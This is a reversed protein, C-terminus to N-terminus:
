ARERAARRADGMVQRTTVFHVKAVDHLAAEGHQRVFESGAKAVGNAGKPFDYSWAKGMAAIGRTFADRALVSAAAVATDREANPTQLLRVGRGREGLAGKVVRDDAFQDLVVIPCAPNKALLKEIATAHAWALLGEAGQFKAVLDNYKKPELVVEEFGSPGVVERVFPAAKAIQMGVLEKSDRVGGEKLERETEETVFIGAVVLPGFYDSKGSEDTGIRPGVAESLSAPAPRSKTKRTAGLGKLIAEVRRMGDGDSGGLVVTGTREVNVVVAGKRATFGRGPRLVM